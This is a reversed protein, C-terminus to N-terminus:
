WHAAGFNWLLAVGKFAMWLIGIFAAILVALLIGGALWANMRHGDAEYHNKLLIMNRRNAKFTFDFLDGIFPISGVMADLVINWIMKIMVPLSVGYRTIVFIVLGSISFSALDGGYPVLGIIADLGFKRNTMPIPISNDMFNAVRDLWKLEPYKEYLAANKAEQENHTTSDM